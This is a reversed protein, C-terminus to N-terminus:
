SSCALTDISGQKKQTTLGEIPIKLMGLIRKYLDKADKESRTWKSCQTYRPRAIQRKLDCISYSANLYACTMCSEESRQAGVREVEDTTRALSGDKGIVGM